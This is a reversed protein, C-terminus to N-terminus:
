KGWCSHDVKKFLSPTRVTPKLNSNNGQSSGAHGRETNTQDM